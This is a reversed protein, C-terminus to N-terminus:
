STVEVDINIVLGSIYIAIGQRMSSIGGISAITSETLGTDLIICERELHDEQLVVM